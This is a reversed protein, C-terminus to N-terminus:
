GKLSVICDVSRARLGVCVSVADARSRYPGVRVVTHKVWSGVVDLDPTTAALLAAHRRRLDGSFRVADRRSAYAGLQVRWPGPAPQAASVPVTVRPTDPKARAADKAALAARFDRQLEVDATAVIAAADNAALTSNFRDVLEGAASALPAPPPPSAVEVVPLDGAVAAAYRAKLDDSANTLDVAWAGAPSAGADDILWARSLARGGVRLTVQYLSTDLRTISYGLKYGPATEKGGEVIAYGRRRLDNVLVASRDDSPVYFAVFAPPFLRALEGTADARITALAGPSAVAATHRATTCGVLSLPVMASLALARLM